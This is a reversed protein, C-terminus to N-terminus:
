NFDVTGKRDSVQINKDPNLKELEHWSALILNLIM